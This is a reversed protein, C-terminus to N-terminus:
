PEGVLWLSFPSGSAGALDDARSLGETYAGTNQSRPGDLYITPVCLGSSKGAAPGRFHM